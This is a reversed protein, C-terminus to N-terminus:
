KSDSLQIQKITTQGLSTLYPYILNTCVVDTKLPTHTLDNKPGFRLEWTYDINLLTLILIHYNTKTLDNRFIEFDILRKFCHAYAKFLKQRFSEATARLRPNENMIADFDKFYFTHVQKLHASQNFVTLLMKLADTGNDSLHSTVDIFEFSIKNQIAILLNEKKPFHYTLNGITTGAVDAITRLSTQKYGDRNFLNIATEIIKEETTNSM